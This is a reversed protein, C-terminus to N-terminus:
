DKLILNSNFFRNSLSDPLSLSNDSLFELKNDGYVAVATGHIAFIHQETSYLSKLEGTRDKNVVPVIVEDIYSNINDIKSNLLTQVHATIHSKKYLHCTSTCFSILIIVVLQLILYINNRTTKNIKM